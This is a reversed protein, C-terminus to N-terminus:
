LYKKFTATMVCMAVAACASSPLIIWNPHLSFPLSLYILWPFVYIHKLLAKSTGHALSSERGGGWRRLDRRMLGDAAGVASFLIFVPLSMILVAVRLAYTETMMMASLIYPELSLYIEHMQFRTGATETVPTRLWRIGKEVGTWEFAWHYVLDACERAFVAPHSAFLSTKFDDSLFTIERNMMQSAHQIGTDPWWFAMGIWELVIALTLGIIHFVLVAGIVKLALGIPGKEPVNSSERNVSSANAAAEAM